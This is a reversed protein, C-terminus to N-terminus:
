NIKEIWSWSRIYMKLEETTMSCVKCFEKKNALEIENNAYRSNKGRTHFLHFLPGDIRRISQGLIEMRSYREADEPGWGYFYENEGGFEKYLKVNVMYAGGVSYYGNMLRKSLFPSDLAEFNFTKSFFTSIYENMNYFLGSFPYVMTYNGKDLLNYASQIQKPYTIADTDWIAAYPTNTMSLMQNIYKTRHFIPDNDYVYIYDLNKINSIESVRMQNDAEIVIFYSHFHTQLFDM